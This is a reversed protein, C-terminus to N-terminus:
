RLHFVRYMYPKEAVSFIIWQKKPAESHLSRAGPLREVVGLPLVGEDEEGRRLDALVVAELDVGGLHGHVDDDVRQQAFHQPRM